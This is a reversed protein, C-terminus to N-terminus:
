ANSRLQGTVAPQQGYLRPQRQGVWVPQESGGFTAM